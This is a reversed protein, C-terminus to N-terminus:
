ALAMMHFLCTRDEKIALLSNNGIKLLDLFADSKELIIKLLSIKISGQVLQNKIATFASIAIAMRDRADQSLKEIM